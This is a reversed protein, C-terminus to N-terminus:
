WWWSITKPDQGKIKEATEEGVKSPLNVFLTYGLRHELESVSLSYSSDVSASDYEQHDFWVACASYGDWGITSSRSYRLVAKFYATPITVRKGDNDFCYKTSGDVTCGTVVYLTDSRNAWGRVKSEMTAWIGSNFDDNIQPTMNTYYFTQANTSYDTLRDASPLQHGRAKWGDNGDRYANHLVAQKDSPLLPDLGWANTRKIASGIYWSNLPYAVWLSVLDDYSYYFSYNRVQTGGISTSHSFFDHKGDAQPVEPLELWGTKPASPKVKDDGGSSNGNQTFTLSAQYRATSLRITASRSESGGNATWSLIVSSKSGKGSLPTASLWATDGGDPYVIDLNWEASATVALFESGSSKEVPNQSVRLSPETEPTQVSGGECSFFMLSLAGLLLATVSHSLHKIFNM